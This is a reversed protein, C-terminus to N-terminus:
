VDIQRSVDKQKLGTMCLLWFQFKPVGGQIKSHIHHFNTFTVVFGKDLKKRRNLDIPCHPTLIILESTQNHKKRIVQSFSRIWTHVPATGIVMHQQGVHIAM